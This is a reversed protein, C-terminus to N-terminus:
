GTAASTAAWGRTCAAVATRSTGTWSSRACARWTSVGLDEGNVVVHAFGCRPAPVGAAAFLRYGLCQKILLLRCNNLTLRELGAYRQDDDYESFKVKLSPRETSMSGILGKKRVGVGDLREGDISVTAPFYILRPAPSPRDHFCPVRAPVLLPVVQVTGRVGLPGRISLAPTPNGIRLPDPWDNIAGPSHPEGSTNCEEVVVATRM